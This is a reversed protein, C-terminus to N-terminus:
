LLALVTTIVAGIIGGILTTIVAAKIQKSTEAPVRELIELREGQKNQEQLMNEICVEMKHVLITLEQIISYEKKLDSVQHKLADIEHDFVELRVAVDTEDM